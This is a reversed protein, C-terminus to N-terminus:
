GWAKELAEATGAADLEVGTLEALEERILEVSLPPPQNINLRRARLQEARHAKKERTRKLKFAELQQKKATLEMQEKMMEGDKARRESAHHWEALLVKEAARVRDAHPGEIGAAGASGAPCCPWWTPINRLRQTVADLAAQERERERRLQKSVQMMYEGDVLVRILESRPTVPRELLPVARCFPNQQFPWDPGYWERLEDCRQLFQTCHVVTLLLNRGNWFFPVMPPPPPTKATRPAGNLPDEPEAAAPADQGEGEPPAVVTPPAQALRSDQTEVLAWRWRVVAETVACLYVHLGEVPFQRWDVFGPRPELPPGIMETVEDFANQRDQLRRAATYEDRCRELTDKIKRLYGELRLAADVVDAEAQMVVAPKERSAEANEPRRRMTGARNRNLQRAREGGGPAAAAGKVIPLVLGGGPQRPRRKANRHIQQETELLVRGLPKAKTSKFDIAQVRYEWDPKGGKAKAQRRRTM